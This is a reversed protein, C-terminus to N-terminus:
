VPGAVAVRRDQGNYARVTFDYNYEGENTVYGAVFVQNGNVAIAYAQDPNYWGSTDGHFQDQWLLKARVSDEAMASQVLAFFFGLTM